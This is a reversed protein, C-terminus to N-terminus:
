LHYRAEALLDNIDTMIQQLDRMTQQLPSQVQDDLTDLEGQADAIQRERELRRLGQQKVTVTLKEKELAQLSRLLTALAREESGHKDLHEAMERVGASLSSFTETVDRVIGGYRAENGTDLFTKFCGEWFLYTSARQKQVRLLLRVAEEGNGVAFSEIAEEGGAVGRLVM